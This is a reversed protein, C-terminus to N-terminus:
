GKYMVILVSNVCDLGFDCATAADDTDKDGGADSGLEGRLVVVGGSGDM